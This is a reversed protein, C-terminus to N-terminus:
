LIECLGESFHFVWVIRLIHPFIISFHKKNKYKRWKPKKWSDILIKEGARRLYNFNTYYDELFYHAECLLVLPAKDWVGPSPTKIRTM